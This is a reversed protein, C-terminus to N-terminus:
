TIMRGGMELNQTRVSNVTTIYRNMVANLNRKAKKKKEREQCHGCKESVEIQIVISGESYEYRGENFKEMFCM